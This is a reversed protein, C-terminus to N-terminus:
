EVLKKRNLNKLKVKLVKKRLYYSVFMYTIRPWVPDSDDSDSDEVQVDQGVPLDRTACSSDEGIVAVGGPVGGSPRAQARGSSIDSKLFIGM